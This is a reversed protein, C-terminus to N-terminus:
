ASWFLAGKELKVESAHKKLFRDVACRCNVSYFLRAGFEVLLSGKGKCKPCEAKARARIESDSVRKM